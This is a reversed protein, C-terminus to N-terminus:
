LMGERNEFRARYQHEYIECLQEDRGYLGNGMHYSSARCGTRCDELHECDLCEKMDRKKIDSMQRFLTQQLLEELTHDRLSLLREEYDTDSYSPCPLLVGADNLYPYQRCGGCAYDNLSFPKKVYADGNKGAGSYFAELGIMFPYGDETWRKLLQLCLEAMQETSVRSALDKANGMGQPRAIGWATVGMDKMRDYTKHILSINEPVVATVVTVDFGAEKALRIVRLVKHEAGQMGRFRDHYGVGDLSFRLTPHFDLSVLLSLFHQDLLVGNTYIDCVGLSLTRIEQLIEPLDGRTLPEGGTLSM